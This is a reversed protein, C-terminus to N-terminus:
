ERDVEAALDHVHITQRDTIARTTVVARSIPQKEDPGRAPMQGYSAVSRVFDGEVRIIQADTAECLRAANQAVVVLVPQVDTPSSAIVRLIESTATQQELAETLDHNRAELEQFLRV